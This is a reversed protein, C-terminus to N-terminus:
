QRVEGRVGDLVRLFPPDDERRPLQRAAGDDDLHLVGAAANRRRLLVPDEIAEVSALAPVAAAEAEAQRDDGLRHPRQAALDLEVGPGSCARRDAQGKGARALPCRSAGINVLRGRTGRDDSATRPRLPCYKGPVAGSLVTGAAAVPPPAHM